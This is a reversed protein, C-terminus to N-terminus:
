KGVKQCVTSNWAEKTSPWIGITWPKDAENKKRAQEYAYKLAPEICKPDLEYVENISSLFIAATRIKDREALTMGDPMAVNCSFHHDTKVCDDMLPALLEYTKQVVEPTDGEYKFTYHPESGGTDHEGTVTYQSNGKNSQM